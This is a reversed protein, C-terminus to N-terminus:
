DVRYAVAVIGNGSRPRLRQVKSFPWVAANM